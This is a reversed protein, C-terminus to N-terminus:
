KDNRMRMRISEVMIEPWHEGTAQSLLHRIFESVSRGRRTQDVAAREARTLRVTIWTEKKQKKNIM